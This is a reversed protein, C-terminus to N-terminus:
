RTRVALRGLAIRELGALDRRIEVGTFRARLLKRVAPGQGDDIELILAGGPLLARPVSEVLARIARLGDPGGDLAMRPEKRVEPDLKSIRSSPIYPPNSLVLDAWPKSVPLGKFLDMRVCRVRGDLGHRRVNEEAVRLAPASSDTAIVECAPFLKAFAVALCGSGTGIDLVRLSRADKPRIKPAIELATEVLTETEPRPILADPAVALEIGMFDHTGLVYSLPVRSARRRVMRWFSAQRAADVASDSKSPLEGRKIGLVAAAIFEASAAAEPTGKSELLRGARRILADVTM